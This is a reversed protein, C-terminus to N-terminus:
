TSLESQRIQNIVCVYFSFFFMFTTDSMQCCVMRSQCSSYTINTLYFPTIVDKSELDKNRISEDSAVRSLIM